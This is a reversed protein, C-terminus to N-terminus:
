FSGIFKNFLSTFKENKESSRALPEHNMSVM